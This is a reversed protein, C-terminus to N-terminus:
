HHCQQLLTVLGTALGVGITAGLVKLGAKLQKKPAVSDLEVQSDRVNVTVHVDPQTPIDEGDYDQLERALREARELPDENPEAARVPGNGSSSRSGPTSSPLLVLPKRTRDM